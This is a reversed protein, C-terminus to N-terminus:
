DLGLPLPRQPTCCLCVEFGEQRGIVADSRRDARERIFAALASRDIRVQKSGLRVAPLLGARILTYARDIPVNLVEAAEPVTLLTPPLTTM